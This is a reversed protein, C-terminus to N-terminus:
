DTEVGCNPCVQADQPLPENCQTCFHLEAGCASCFPLPTTMSYDCYPCYCIEEELEFTEDKTM